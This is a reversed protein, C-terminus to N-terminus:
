MCNAKTGSTSQVIFLCIQCSDAACRTGSNLLEILHLLSITNGQEGSFGSHWNRYGKLSMVLPKANALDLDVLFVASESMLNM